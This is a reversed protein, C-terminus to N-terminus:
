GAQEDVRPPEETPDIRQVIVQGGHSLHPLRTALEVAQDYDRATVVFVGSLPGATGPVLGPSVRPGAASPEIVRGDDVRFDEGTVFQGRNRAEAVWEGYERYRALLESREAPRFGETEYLLLAYKVPAPGAGPQPTTAPLRDSARGALFGITVLLAAAVAALWARAALRTEPRRRAGPEILGRELLRATVREELAAPPEIELPLGDVALDPRTPDEPYENM